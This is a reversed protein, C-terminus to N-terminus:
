NSLLVGEKISCPSIFLRKTNLKRIVWAIKVATIHMMKRRIPLIYTNKERETESSFLMQNLVDQLQQINVEITDLSKPFPLKHIIEYLSEFSGSAGILTSCHIRQLFEGANEEFYKEINQVTSKDLQQPQGFLQFARSVGIEFSEIKDIGKQNAFIFETSGGGIDMITAPVSFDYSYAVGKYIYRAEEKGDIVNVKENMLKEVKEIFTNANTANRVSSTGVLHLHEVEWKQCYHKYKKLCEMARQEAEITISNKTIGGMGLAVGEKTSLLQEIRGNIVRAILLNFTNTGM